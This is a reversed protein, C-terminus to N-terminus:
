SEASPKISRGHSHYRGVIRAGYAPLRGDLTLLGAFILAMGAFVTGDLREGLACRGLLLASVPVPFNVLMVYTPLSCPMAKLLFNM